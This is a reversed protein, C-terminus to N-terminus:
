KWVHVKRGVYLKNDSYEFFWKFESWQIAFCIHNDIEVRSNPNELRYQEIFEQNQKAPKFVIGGLCKAVTDHLDKSDDDSVAKVTAIDGAVAARRYPWFGVLVGERLIKEYNFTTKM